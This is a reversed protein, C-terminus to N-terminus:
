HLSHYQPFLVSAIFSLSYSFSALSLSWSGSTMQARKHRCQCGWTKRHSWELPLGCSERYVLMLASGKGTGSYLSDGEDEKSEKKAPTRRGDLADAFTDEKLPDAAIYSIPVQYVIRQICWLFLNWSVKVMGTNDRGPTFLLFFTNKDIFGASTASICVPLLDSPYPRAIEVIVKESCTIM